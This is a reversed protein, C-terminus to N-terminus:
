CVGQGREVRVGGQMNVIVKFSHQPNKSVSCYRLHGIHGRPKSTDGMYRIYDRSASTRLLIDGYKLRWASQSIVTDEEDKKNNKNNDYFLILRTDAGRRCVGYADVTCIVVDKKHIFSQTRAERLGAIFSAEVRRSEIGYLLNMVSPYAILAIIAVVSIVVLLEVLTFAKQSLGSM